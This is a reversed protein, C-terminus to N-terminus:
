ALVGDTAAHFLGLGVFVVAAIAVGGTPLLLAAYTAGLLVYGLVFVFRHGIRDALKGVPIAFVMFILATIVYQLPFLPAPVALRQKLALYVLNDSITVIGLASGLLLVNRFEVQGLLAVADRWSVVVREASPKTPADSGPNDVFLVIVGVGVLAVALS